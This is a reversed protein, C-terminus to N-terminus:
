FMQRHHEVARMAAGFETLRLTCNLGPLTEHNGSVFLVPENDVLWGEKLIAREAEEIVQWRMLAPGAFPWAVVHASVLPLCHQQLTGTGM